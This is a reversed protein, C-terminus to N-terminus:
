GGIREMWWRGLDLGGRRAEGWDKGVPPRVRISGDWASAAVDGADDADHAAYVVSAARAAELVAPGPRFAASGTTIVRAAEGLEQALLLADFEGECVILPVGPLIAAPSPFCVPGDRYVERYKPELGTAQRVTLKVMRGADIWPIFLGAPQGPLWRVRSEAFGLGAAKIIDDSLGRFRHLYLRARAALESTWWLGRIAERAARVATERSIVTRRRAPKGPEEGSTSPGPGDPLFGGTRLADKAQTFTLGRLRM